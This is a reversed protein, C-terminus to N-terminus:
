KRQFKTENGAFDEVDMGTEQSEREKGRFADKINLQGSSMLISVKFEIQRFSLWLNRGLDRGLQLWLFWLSSGTVPHCSWEESQKPWADLQTSEQSRCGGDLGDALGTPGVKLIHRANLQGPWGAATVM